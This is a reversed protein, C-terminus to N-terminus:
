LCETPIVNLILDLLQEQLAHIQEREIFSRSRNTFQCRFISQNFGKCNVCPCQRVKEIRLSDTILLYDGIVIDSTLHSPTSIAGLDRARQVDCSLAGSTLHCM